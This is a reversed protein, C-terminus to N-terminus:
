IHKGVEVEMHRLQTVDLSGGGVDGGVLGVAHVGGGDIGHERIGGGHPLIVDVCFRCEVKRAPLVAFRDIVAVIGGNANIRGHFAAIAFIRPAQIRNVIQRDVVAGRGVRDLPHLLRATQPPLSGFIPVGGAANTAQCPM